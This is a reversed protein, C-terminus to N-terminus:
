KKGVINIFPRIKGTGDQGTVEETMQAAEINVFGAEKFFRKVENVDYFTFDAQTWPLEVGNKKEMFSLSLKGGLRLVRYIEKLHSIPDKWFYIANVTFCGDFFNNEFDLTGDEKAQNFQATGENIKLAPASSAGTVLAESINNGYYGIGTAKQFLFPLYERSKFGTELVLSYDALELQDVTKSIMTRDFPSINITNKKGAEKFDIQEEM